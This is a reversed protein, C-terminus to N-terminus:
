CRWVGSRVGGRETVVDLGIWDAHHLGSAWGWQGDLVHGGDVTRVPVPVSVGIVGCLTADPNGAWIRRWIPDGLLGAFVGGSYYTGTRGTRTTGCFPYSTQRPPWM